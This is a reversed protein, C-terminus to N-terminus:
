EKKSDVLFYLEKEVESEEQINLELLRRLHIMGEADISNFRFGFNSGEKHVLTAETRINIDTNPLAVRLPYEKNIELCESDTKILSGKMSINILDVSFEKDGCM